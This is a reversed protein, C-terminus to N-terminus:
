AIKEALTHSELINKCACVNGLLKRMQKERMKQYNKPIKARTKHGFSLFCECLVTSVQETTMFIYENLQHMSFADNMPMEDDNNELKKDGELELGTM